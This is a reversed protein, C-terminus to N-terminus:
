PDFNGILSLAATYLGEMLRAAESDSKQIISEDDLRIYNIQSPDTKVLGLRTQAVEDINAANSIEDMKTSLYDYRTTATSLDARTADIEGCLETLKAQSAVIATILGLLVAIGVVSAVQRALDRARSLAFRGGRVVRVRPTRRVPATREIKYAATTM